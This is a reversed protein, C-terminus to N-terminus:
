RRGSAALAGGSRAAGGGRGEPRAAGPPPPAPRSRWRRARSGGRWAGAGADLRTLRRLWDRAPPQYSTRSVGGAEGGGAGRSVAAPARPAAAAPGRGIALRPPLARLARPADRLTGGGVTTVARQPHPPVRLLARPLAAGALRGRPPPSPPPPSVPPPSPFPPPSVPSPPPPPSPLLPRWLGAM